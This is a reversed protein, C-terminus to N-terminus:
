NWPMPMNIYCLYLEMTNIESLICALHHGTLKYFLTARHYQLQNETHPLELKSNDSRAKKELYTVIRHSIKWNLKKCTICTLFLETYALLIHRSALNTRYAFIVAKWRCGKHALSVNEQSGQYTSLNNKKCCPYYKVTYNSLSQRKSQRLCKQNIVIIM